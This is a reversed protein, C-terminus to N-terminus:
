LERHRWFFLASGCILLPFLCGSTASKCISCLSLPSGISRATVSVSLAPLDVALRCSAMRSEDPTLKARSSSDCLLPHLLGHQGQEPQFPVSFPSSHLLETHVALLQFGPLCRRRYSSVPPTAPHAHFSVLTGFKWYISPQSHGWM